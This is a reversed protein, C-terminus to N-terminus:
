AANIQKRWWRRKRTQSLDLGSLLLNLENTSLGVQCSHCDNPQPWNFTGRELRKACLWLGHGDFFLMKLRDRRRNCFIFLHGSLPDFEPSGNEQNEPHSWSRVLGSLTDFSKRMDTPGVALYVKTTPGPQFM